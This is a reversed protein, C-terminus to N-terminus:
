GERFFVGDLQLLRGTKKEYFGNEVSFLSFGLSNMYEIIELYQPSDKYLSVLSLEIQIGTIKPISNIAGTLVKKEYGQTDIKLFIKDGTQFHNNFITDLKYLAITERDIYVADKENESHLPLMDLISSSASNKSINIPIDCDADGLGYNYVQWHDDRSSQKSLRSFADSLPEFSIIEGSYGFQRMELAYQGENAGIDLIKNINHSKM